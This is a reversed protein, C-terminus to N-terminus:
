APPTGRDEIVTAGFGVNTVPGSVVGVTEVAPTLDACRVTVLVPNEPDTTNGGTADASVLDYGGDSRAQIDVTVQSPDSSEATPVDPLPVKLGDVDSGDLPTRGQKGSELLIM